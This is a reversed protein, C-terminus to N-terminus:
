KFLKFKNFIKVRNQMKGELGRLFSRITDVNTFLLPNDKYIIRALKLTPMDWGYKERYEACLQSKNM